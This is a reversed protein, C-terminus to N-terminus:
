RVAIAPMPSPDPVVSLGPDPPVAACWSTWPSTFVMRHEPLPFPVAARGQLAMVSDLLLPLEALPQPAQGSLVALAEVDAIGPCARRLADIV